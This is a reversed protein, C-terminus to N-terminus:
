HYMLWASVASSLGGDRSSRGGRTGPPRHVPHVDIGLRAGRDITTIRYGADVWAETIHLHAAAIRALLIVGAATDSVSGATVLATLLLSLHRLRPPTQARHDTKPTRAKIRSAVNASTRVTQSDLVCASSEAGRGEAERALRRPLGTLQEFM